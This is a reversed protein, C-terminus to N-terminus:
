RVRFAPRRTANDRSRDARHYGDHRIDPWLTLGPRKRARSQLPLFSLSGDDASASPQGNAPTAGGQCQRAATRQARLGSQDLAVLRHAATASRARGPRAPRLGLLPFARPAYCRPQRPGELSGARRAGQLRDAVKVGPLRNPRRAARGAARRERVDLGLARAPDLGPGSRPTWSINLRYGPELADTWARLTTGLPFFADYLRRGEFALTRLQESVSVEEWQQRHPADSRDVLSTWDYDPSWKDFCSALDTPDIDDLYNGWDGRFREAAARVNEIRGSVRAPVVDWPIQDDM